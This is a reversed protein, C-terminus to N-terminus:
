YVTKGVKRIRQRKLTQIEHIYVHSHRFFHAYFTAASKDASRSLYQPTDIKFILIYLFSSLIRLITKRM